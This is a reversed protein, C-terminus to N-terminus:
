NRPHYIKGPEVLESPLSLLILLIVENITTNQKINFHFTSVYLSGNLDLVMFSDSGSTM